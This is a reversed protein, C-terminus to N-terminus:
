HQLYQQLIQGWLEISAISIIVFCQQPWKKSVSQVIILLWRLGSSFDAYDYHVYTSSRRTQPTIADKM